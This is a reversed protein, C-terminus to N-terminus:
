SANSSKKGAAVFNPWPLIKVPTQRDVPPPTDAETCAPIYEGPFLGGRSCVGGGGSLLKWCITLSRGTRMRSSHMRTKKKFSSTGHYSGQGSTVIYRAVKRIQLGQYIICTQIAHTWSGFDQCSVLLCMMFRSLVRSSVTLSFHQISSALFIANVLFSFTSHITNQSIFVM